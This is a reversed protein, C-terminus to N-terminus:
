QGRRLILTYQMHHCDNKAAFQPSPGSFEVLASILSKHFMLSTLPLGARPLTSVCHWAADIGARLLALLDEVIGNSYIQARTLM